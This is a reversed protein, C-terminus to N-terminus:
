VWLIMKHKIFDFVFTACFDFHLISGSKLMNIPILLKQLSCQKLKSHFGSWNCCSLLLFDWLAVCVCLLCRIRLILIVSFEFHTYLRKTRENFLMLLCWKCWVVSMCMISCTSEDRKPRIIHFCLYPILLLFVCRCLFLQHTYCLLEIRETLKLKHM